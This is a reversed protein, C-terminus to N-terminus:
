TNAPLRGLVVTHIQNAGALRVKLAVPRRDHLVLGGVWGTRKRGTCPKFRVKAHGDEIRYVDGTPIPGFLLAVRDREVRPVWVTAGSNGEIIVPMKTILDGGKGSRLAQRFDRNPGYFGLNGVVTSRQRWRADANGLIASHCGAAATSNEAVDQANRLPRGRDIGGSDCASAIVVVAILFHRTRGVAVM